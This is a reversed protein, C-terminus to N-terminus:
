PQSDRVEDAAALRAKMRALRQRGYSSEPEFEGARCRPHLEAFPVGARYEEIVRDPDFDVGIPNEAFDGYKMWDLMAERTDFNDVQLELGNGDPDRYYFSTIPGHNTVWYPLTGPEKLRLYTSALEGFDRYQYAVHDLGQATLGGGDKFSPDQMLAIRGLKDDWSLFCASGNDFLVEGGLVRLYFDRMEPLQKTRFNVHHLYSPAIARDTVLTPQTVSM